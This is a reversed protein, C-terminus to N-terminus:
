KNYAATGHVCMVPGRFIGESATGRDPYFNAFNENEGYPQGSLIKLFEGFLRLLNGSLFKASLILGYENGSLFKGALARKAM